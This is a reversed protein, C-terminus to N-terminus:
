CSTSTVVVLRGVDSALPGLNLLANDSTNSSVFLLMQSLVVLVEIFIHVCVVVLDFNYM